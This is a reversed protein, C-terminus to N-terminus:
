VCLGFHKSAVVIQGLSIGGDNVPVQHNTYVEFQNQKLISVSKELLYMNQFVGGSLVVKNINYSKRILESVELIVQVVTNHFRVSIEAIDVKRLDELISSFTDAFVVTGSIRFPYSKDSPHDIASELRIPAESDFSSHRCLGALASVADFLRGAGSSLPTNIGKIIMEKVLNLRSKEIRRFVDIKEYNISEGFYRYLYSLAMRWPEDAVKDGGPLPVYDFHTFREFGSNDAILFEGGWINGDTGYGTGDLSV